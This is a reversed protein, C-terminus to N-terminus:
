TWCSKKENKLRKWGQRKKKKPKMTQKNLYEQYYLNGSSHNKCNENARVFM